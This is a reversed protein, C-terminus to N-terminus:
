LMDALWGIGYGIAAGVAAGALIQVSTRVGRVWPKMARERRGQVTDRDVPEGKSYALVERYTILDHEKKLKEAHWTAILLVLLAICIFVVTPAMHEGWGWSWQFAAWVVLAFFALMSVGMVVGLMNFKKVADDMVKEMEEVDGKILSDVTAGFVTSLLLLSQVDPYTRGTEWNSITQRSVYIREALDDQSLGLNARHEKIHAGLEM